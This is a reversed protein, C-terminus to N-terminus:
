RDPGMAPFYSTMGIAEVWNGSPDQGFVTDQGTMPFGADAAARKTAEIDSVRIAVIPHRGPLPAVDPSLNLIIFPEPITATPQDPRPRARKFALAIERPGIKGLPEMQFVAGYYNVAAELDKVYIKPAILSAPPAQLSARLDPLADLSKSPSAAPVAAAALSPGTLALVLGIVM